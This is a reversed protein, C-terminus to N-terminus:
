YKLTSKLMHMRVIGSRQLLAEAPDTISNLLSMVSSLLAARAHQDTPDTFRSMATNVEQQKSSLGNLDPQWNISATM